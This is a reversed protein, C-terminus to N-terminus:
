DSPWLEIRIMAAKFSLQYLMRIQLWLAQPGLGKASFLIWRHAYYYFVVGGLHLPDRTRVGARRRWHLCCKHWASSSSSILIRTMIVTGGSRLGAARGLVICGYSLQSPTSIVFWTNCTRSQKPCKKGGYDAWSWLLKDSWPNPEIRYESVCWSYNSM